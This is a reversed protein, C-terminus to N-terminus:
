QLRRTLAADASRKRGTQVAPAASHVATRWDQERVKAQDVELPTLEWAISMRAQVAIDRERDLAASAALAFWKHAEIADAAVGKGLAHHIGLRYMSAADDLAAGRIFWHIATDFDQAIDAHDVYLEGIASHAHPVDQAAARLFWVLALKGDAPTGIGDRLMEGLEFQAEAYGQDAAAHLWGFAKFSDRAVGEGNLYIVGLTAQAVANHQEALITLQEVARADDHRAHLILADTLDDAIGEHGSLVVLLATCLMLACAARPRDARSVREVAKIPPKPGGPELDAPKSKLVVAALFQATMLGAFALAGLDSQMM